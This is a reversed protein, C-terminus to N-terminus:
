APVSALRRVRKVHLLRRVAILAGLFLLGVLVLGGIAIRTSTGPRGLLDGPSLSPERRSRGQPFEYRAPVEPIGDGDEDPFKRVYELFGKFEKLEQVGPLDPDVDIRCSALDDIPNGAADKPVIKVLDHTFRSILRIFAAVYLNMAVRILRPSGAARSRSTGPGPEVPPIHTFSHPPEIQYGTVRDFPVRYPNYTYTLGSVHPFYDAGKLSAVTAPVELIQSIEDETVFFSVVPYGPREDDGIGMPLTTFLDCVALGGTEGVLLSERILGNSQIALEVPIDPTFRNVSWLFADALLDGINSEQDTKILDFRTEAVVQSYGLQSEALFVEAIRGKAEDIDQIVSPSGVIADDIPLLEHKELRIGKEDLLLDLVGLYHGFCGAIVILCGNVVLPEPVTIHSHGSVILDIGPVSKALRYDESILLPGGLGSHSLAFVLDVHEEERLIKVMRSATEAIGEFIMPKAFPAKEAADRGMLGFIGIRAGEVDRVVYPRIKQADFLHQLRDDRTSNPDFRANALVLTPLERAGEAAEIMRALGDPRMDFEHNGLALADYGMGFLLRFETGDERAVTHFLTGMSFDGADLLLVPHSRRSRERDIATALRAWGGVTRDDGTTAPTYDLTPSWGELRSHLDNTHLVTIRRARGHVRDAQLLTALVCFLVPISAFGRRAFIRGMGLGPIKQKVLLGHAAAAPPVVNM